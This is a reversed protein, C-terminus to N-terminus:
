WQEGVSEGNRKRGRGGRKNAPTFRGPDFPSLDMCECSGELVLEAMAKGAGPAWAIGWCNHGANIYAGEVNPIPGMYPMADPPCPRQIYIRINGAHTDNEHTSHPTLTHLFFRLHTSVTRVLTCSLTPNTLAICTHHAHAMLTHVYIFKIRVFTGYLGPGKRAGRKGQVDVVDDYLCGIRSASPNRKRRM